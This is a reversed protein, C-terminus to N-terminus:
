KRAPHSKLAVTAAPIVAGASNASHFGVEGLVRSDQGGIIGAARLRRGHMRTFARRLARDRIMSARSSPGADRRDRLERRRGVVVVELIRYGGMLSDLSPAEIGPYPRPM